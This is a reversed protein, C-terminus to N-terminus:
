LLNILQQAASFPTTEGSVVQQELKPRLKKIKPNQSLHLELMDHLLKHLWQRNQEARKGDFCRNKGANDRYDIFNILDGLVLLPTEGPAVRRLAAAAGHIDSVLRIM